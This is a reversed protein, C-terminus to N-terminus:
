VMKNIAKGTSTIGERGAEIAAMKARERALPSSVFKWVAGGIGGLVLMTQAPLGFFLPAALADGVPAWIDKLAGGISKLFGASEPTSKFAWKGASVLGQLIGLGATLGVAGTIPAGIYPARSVRVAARRVGQLATGVTNVFM